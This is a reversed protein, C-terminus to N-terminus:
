SQSPRRKVSQHAFLSALVVMCVGAALMAYAAGVVDLRPVLVIALWLYVAATVLYVVAVLRERHLSVLYQVALGGLGLLGSAVISLYGSVLAGRFGDPLLYEVAFWHGACGAATVTVLFSLFVLLMRVVFPRTLGFPGMIHPQLVRNIQGVLILLARPAYMAVGFIGAAADGHYLRILVVGATLPITGLLASIALKWSSSLLSRPEQWSWEWRVAPLARRLSLWLFVTSAIWKGAFIVAVSGLSLEGMSRLAVFSILAAVEFATTVVAYRTQAHRYDFFPMLNVSAAVNGLALVSLVLQETKTPALLAAVLITFCALGFGLGGTVAIYATWLGNLAEPRRTLERVIVARLGATGLIMLYGQLTLGFALVGYLEAGLSKTLLLVSLLGCIQTVIAAALLWGLNRSAQRGAPTFFSGLWRRLSDQPPQSM